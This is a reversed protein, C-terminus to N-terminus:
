KVMVRAANGVMGLDVTSMALPVVLVAASAVALSCFFLRKM